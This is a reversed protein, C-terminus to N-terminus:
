NREGALNLCYFGARNSEKGVGNCANGGPLDRQSRQRLLCIGLQGNVLKHWRWRHEERETELCTEDITGEGHREADEHPEAERFSLPINAGAVWFVARKKALFSAHGLKTYVSRLRSRRVRRACSELM